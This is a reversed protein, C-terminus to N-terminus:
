NKQHGEPAGKKESADGERRLLLKTAAKALLAVATADFAKPDVVPLKISRRSVKTYDPLRQRLDILQDLRFQALLVTRAARREDVVQSPEVFHGDKFEVYLSANRQAHQYEATAQVNSLAFDGVPSDTAGKIMLANEVIEMRLKAKHDKLRRNLERWDIDHGAMMRIATAHLMVMRSMEERAMHALSMARAFHKADLLLKAEDVLATSNRLLADIGEGIQKLSYM